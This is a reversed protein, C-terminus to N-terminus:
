VPTQPHGIEKSIDTTTQKSYAGLETLSVTRDQNTDAERRNNLGDLLAYTFLGNGRYGDLAAQRDSASAYIHLGMKKALVSMRADYLGSVIYDVGGAHCTDFVFLQSLSKIRKSMEIIENSSILSAPLFRGDYDHTLMYYQNQVLIGHGAVFLVFGDNPKIKEALRDITGTINKKTADADTLVTTHTNGTGYLTATQRLLRDEINRADSVAYKLNVTSDRYQNLGISLIYLHPAALQVTSNFKVTQMASQVTNDKNFAAVSIENEGPVADIERCAECVDGKQNTVPSAAQPGSVRIGRMDEYIARSNMQALRMSGSSGAAAERYYGDSEVLKGNHFLRVEGIGGGASKVKYCVNIKSAAAPSTVPEVEVTPPPNQIADKMTITVLDKIDDGRLKAAVIDPRYFVDYFKDVGYSAAGAKVSLYQAGKESANYYGESTIVLWEGDQFGIFVATEEGTRADYLRAAPEGMTLLVHREDPHYLSAGMSATKLGKWMHTFDTLGEGTQINWTKMPLSGILVQRGDSSPSLGWVRVFMYSEFGSFRRVEKGTQIDWLIVNEDAWAGTLAHRGDNTFAVASVGGMMGTEHKYLQRIEKGAQVDWLRVVGDPGGSLIRKGDPSFAAVSSSFGPALTPKRYDFMMTRAISWAKTDILYLCAGATALLLRGDSSFSVSGVEAGKPDEFIKKM